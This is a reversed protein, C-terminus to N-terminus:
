RYIGVGVSLVYIPGDLSGSPAVATPGDFEVFHVRAGGTLRLKTVGRLVFATAVQDLEDLTLLERRPLFTMSEAMCYQCRFDCRDTVSLRLYSIRRGFRDILPLPAPRHVNM